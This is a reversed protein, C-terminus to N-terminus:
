KPWKVIKDKKGYYPCKKMQAMQGNRDNQGNSWETEKTMQGNPDNPRQLKKTIQHKPNNPWKVM